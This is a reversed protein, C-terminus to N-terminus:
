KYEIITRRSSTLRRRWYLLAGQAQALKSLLLLAGWKAAQGDSPFRGRARWGIRSIQVGILLVLTCAAALLLPSAVVFSALLLAPALLLIASWV